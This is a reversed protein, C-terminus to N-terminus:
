PLPRTSAATPPCPAVAEALRELRRALAGLDALAHLVEGLARDVDDTRALARAATPDGHRGGNRVAPRDYRRAAVGVSDERGRRLAEAIHPGIQRLAAIDRELRDLLQRDKRSLGNM